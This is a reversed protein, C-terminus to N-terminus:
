LETITTEGSLIPYSTNLNQHLWNSNDGANLIQQEQSTLQSSIDEEKVYVMSGNQLHTINQASNNPIYSGHYNRGPYYPPNGMQTYVPAEQYCDPAWNNYGRGIYQNPRPLYPIHQNMQAYDSYVPPMKMTDNCKTRLPNQQSDPSNPHSASPSGGKNKQEKKYKIRRNQFWIKIQRETLNLARALNIRRPRCLYKNTFFEKELEVLQNSTYATRARKTPNNPTIQTAVIQPQQQQQQQPTMMYRKNEFWVRVQRESLHLISAIRKCRSRSRDLYKNRHFQRELELIQVRSLLTEPRETRNTSDLSSFPASKYEQKKMYWRHKNEFWVRVQHESLHLNSAIRKCRSRYLYTNRHFQRELELIQVGSFRQNELDKKYKMRRNQFWIKIQRETLNLARALNIRRPRCLYKNTFFEKELEVLQNNTYATRARKTTNNPTIQTPVVQAQQQHQPTTMM